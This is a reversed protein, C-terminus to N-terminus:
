PTNRPLIRVELNKTRENLRELAENTIDLANDRLVISQRRLVISLQREQVIESVIKLLEQGLFAEAQQISRDFNSQQQQISQQINVVDRQFEEFRKQFDEESLTNRLSNLEREEQRLRLEDASIQAQFAENKEDFFTRIEAMGNSQQIASNMDIIGINSTAEQAMAGNALSLAALMMTTMITTLAFRRFGHSLSAMMNFVGVSGSSFFEPQTM